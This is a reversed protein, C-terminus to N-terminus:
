KIETLPDLHRRAADEKDAIRRGARVMLAIVTSIIIVAVLWIM